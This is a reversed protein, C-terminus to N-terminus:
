KALRTLHMKALRHGQEAAMHFWKVAEAEHAPVTGKGKLYIVGLAYQANVHGQEAAIKYWRLSAGMDERDHYWVALSYQANVDGQEAIKRYQTFADDNNEKLAAKRFWREAEVIDQQIGIGGTAYM